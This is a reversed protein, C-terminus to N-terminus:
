LSKAKKAAEEKQKRAEEREAVTNEIHKALSKLQEDKEYDRPHLRKADNIAKVANDWDELEMFSYAMLYYGLLPKELGGKAVARVYFQNADKIKDVARYAEGIQLDLNGDKPFLVAAEKLAAIAEVEKNAQQYYSGLIRWNQITSEITGAKLHAHLIDTAKSPQGATIYVTVLTYNDKPTKMFGLAQAREMANIARIYYERQREHEKEGQALNVYTSVLVPWYDKKTPFKKLFLELFESARVMEGQQQMIAILLLYFSEKPTNTSLMAKEVVDRAEKLRAQDIKKDDAVAQQYLLQAYLAQTELTPKKSNDLHRKLYGLARNIQKTQEAPVKINSAEMFMIQALWLSIENADKPDFYNHEDSLRLATEWAEIAGAYKDMGALLRARINQLYAMDYSNPAAQAAVSEIHTLMAQFPVPNQQQLEGLKKLGESTKESFSHEKKAQAQGMAPLALAFALVVSLCRGVLISSKVVPNSM